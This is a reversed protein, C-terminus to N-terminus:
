ALDGILVKSDMLDTTNLGGRSRVNGAIGFFVGLSRNSQRALVMSIRLLHRRAIAGQNM